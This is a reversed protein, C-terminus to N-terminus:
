VFWFTYNRGNKRDDSHIPIQYDAKFLDLKSFIKRGNLGVMSLQPMPYCDRVTIRNLSRYDGCPRWDGMEKKPVMHLSSSCPRKSPEIIGPRQMEDFANKCVNLEEPTLQRSKSFVQKGSIEIKQVTKHRSKVDFIANGFVDSCKGM